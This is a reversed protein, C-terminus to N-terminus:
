QYIAGGLADAVTLFNAALRASSLATIPSWVREISSRMSAMFCNCASGRLALGVRNRLRHSIVPRGRPVNRLNPIARAFIRSAAIRPSM